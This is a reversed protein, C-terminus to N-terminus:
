IKILMGFRFNVGVMSVNFLREDIVAGQSDYQYVKLKDDDGNKFNTYYFYPVSLNLYMGIKDGFYHKWSTGLQFEPGSGIVYEQEKFDDYRFSSYGIELSVNFANKDNNVINYAVVAGFNNAVAKNNSDSETLFGMREYNIGLSWDDSVQYAVGLSVLGPVGSSNDDDFDNSTVGYVGFGLGAHIDFNGKQLVQAETLNVLMVVIFISIIYRMILM